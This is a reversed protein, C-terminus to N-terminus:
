TGSCVGSNRQAKISAIISKVSEGKFLQEREATYDGSGARFQNLFRLTDVVGLEQILASKARNTIESLPQFHISM